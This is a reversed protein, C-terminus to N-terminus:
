VTILSQLKAIPLVQEVLGLEKFAEWQLVLLLAMQPMLGSYPTFLLESHLALEQASQPEQLQQEVSM